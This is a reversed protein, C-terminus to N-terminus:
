YKYNDKLNQLEEKLIQFWLAFTNKRQEKIKGTKIFYNILTEQNIFIVIDNEQKETLQTKINNTKKIINWFFDYHEKNVGLEVFKEEVQEKRWDDM